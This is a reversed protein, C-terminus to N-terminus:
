FEPCLKLNFNTTKRNKKFKQMEVNYHQSDTYSPCDEFYQENGGAYQQLWDIAQQKTEFGSITITLM